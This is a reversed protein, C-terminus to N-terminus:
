YRFCLAEFRFTIYPTRNYPETLGSFVALVEKLARLVEANEAILHPLLSAVLQLNNEQIYHARHQRRQVGGALKLLRKTGAERGISVEVSSRRRGKGKWMRTTPSQPTSGGALAGDEPGSTKRFEDICSKFDDVIDVFTTTWELELPMKDTRSDANGEFDLIINNGKDTSVRLSSNLQFKFNETSTHKSVVKLVILIIRSLRDRLDRMMAEDDDDNMELPPPM